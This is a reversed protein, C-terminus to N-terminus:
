AGKKAPAPISKICHLDVVNCALNIIDPYATFYPEGEIEFTYNNLDNEDYFDNFLEAENETLHSLDNNFLTVIYFEPLQVTFEAKFYNREISVYDRMITDSLYTCNDVTFYDSLYGASEYEEIEDDSLTMYVYDARSKDENKLQEDHEIAYEMFLEFAEIESDCYIGYYAASNNSVPITIKVFLDASFKCDKNIQKERQYM